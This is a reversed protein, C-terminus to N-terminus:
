RSTSAGPPIYFCRPSPLLSFDGAGGVESAAQALAHGYVCHEQAYTTSTCPPSVSSNTAVIWSPDDAVLWEHPYLELLQVHWKSVVSDLLAPLAGTPGGGSPCSQTYDQALLPVKGEYTAFPACAVGPSCSSPSTSPATEAVWQTMGEMGIPTSFREAKAAVKGPLDPAGPFPNISVMIPHASGLSHEYDIQSTSWNQWVKATLGAAMWATWCVGDAFGDVPFDEDDSGLGFRIYGINGNANVHNVLAAQFAQWNTKYLSDWYVPIGAPHSNPCSANPIVKSPTEAALANLVYTPTAAGADGVIQEGKGENAGWVSLNVIKGNTAWQSVASDLFSWNYQPSSSPGNDIASWPIVVTFGCITPDSPLYTAIASNINPNAPTNWDRNANAVFLGHAGGPDAIASGASCQAWAGPAPPTRCIGPAPTGCYESAQAAPSRPSLTGIALAM